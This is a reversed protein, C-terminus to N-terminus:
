LKLIWVQSSKELLKYQGEFQTLFMDIAQKPESVGTVPNQWTYDDFALIGGKKLLKWSNAGDNLISAVDHAGDVYIFNFDKIKCEPLFNESKNKVKIVNDFNSIRKDYEEEIVTMDFIDHESSGEWTDLDYLLSGSGTLVNELLWLSADGGFVGIQLFKVNDKDKYQTLYCEFHELATMEFWPKNLFYLYSHARKQTDTVRAM